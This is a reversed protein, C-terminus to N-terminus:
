SAQEKFLRMLVVSVEARTAAAKPSLTGDENGILIGKQVAWNMADKAWNSVTSLDPASASPITQVLYEEKNSYKYLIMALQERTVVDNPGFTNNEKGKIIGAELAWSIASNYYTDSAVDKFHHSAAVPKDELRYLIEVLMGRTMKSNPDFKTGNTGVILERSSMFDAADKFWDKNSVDIFNKSNDIIQLSASGSLPVSIGESTSVSKRIIEKSGDPKVLVAVMGPHTEAIPLTVKQVTTIDNPFTVEATIEGSSPITTETKLGNTMQETKIITGDSQTTQEISSGDPRKTMETRSNDPKTITTIITGDTHQTTETVTGKGDNKTTTTSGDPNKVTTETTTNSSSSSSDGGSSSSDSGGSSTSPRKRVAVVCSATYSGDETTVTITAKGVSKPTVTGKGDVIAVSTNDSHWYLKQNTANTPKVTARLTGTEGLYLTLNDRNMEIGQVPISSATDEITLIGSTNTIHYNDNLPTPVSIHIEYTGTKSTDPTSSYTMKIDGIQDGSIPGGSVGYEYDVGLQPNSLDPASENVKIKRDVAKLEIPKPMIKFSQTAEGLKVGDEFRVTVGYQGAQTPASTLLQQELADYYTVKLNPESNSYGEVSWANYSQGNYTMNPATMKLDVIQKNTVTVHINVMMDEYNAFSVIVPITASGEVAKLDYSLTGNTDMNVHTLIQSDGTIKGVQYSQPTYGSPVLQSINEKKLGADMSYMRNKDVTEPASAKRIVVEPAVTFEKQTTLDPLQYWKSDETSLKWEMVTAKNYSNAEPSALEAIGTVSLTKGGDLGVQQIKTTKKQGDYVFDELSIHEVHVVQPKLKVQLQAQGQAPLLTNSGGFDIYIQSTGIPLKQDTTKYLLTAKGNKDIKAKGLLNDESASNGFYFKVENEEAVARAYAQESKIGKKPEAKFTFRITDGYTYEQKDAELGLDATGKEINFNIQKKGTYSGIGIITATAKGININNTYDVLYDTGEVLLAGNNKVTISPKVAQGTYKQNAIADITINSDNINTGGTSQEIVTFEIEAIIPAGEISKALVMYYRGPNVNQDTSLTIKNDIDYNDAGVVIGTIELSGDLLDDYIDDLSQGIGYKGAQKNADYQSKNVVVGEIYPTYDLGDTDKFRVEYEVGNKNSDLDNKDVITPGIVRISNPDVERDLAPVGSATWTKSNSDFKLEFLNNYFDSFRFSDESSNRATIYVKENEWFANFDTGVTTKGSVQGNITLSGATDLMLTGGGNFDGTIMADLMNRLNLTTDNELSISHIQSSSSPIFTAGNKLHIDKFGNVQIDTAAVSNIELTSKNNGTIKDIWSNSAYSPIFTAGNKLHIDKFGNVQIDTAAVSNIELTSKNNGTIKDIWSNSANELKVTATTNDTFIGDRVKMKPDLILTADGEYPRQGNVNGLHIGQLITNSNPNKITLQAHNGMSTTTHEEAGGYVKMKPDLILTADGEYPREKINGLRIGQLITNNNPNKITLQAHNGIHPTTHEEAGGYVTPLLEDESSGIGGLSGGAGKLYTDVNDLTLSYGALFIERQAVSGLANSSEFHLKIDKFTVNDGALQLPYTDVNDLTLSYGALFIERQAVSGLANSSEFHLKIDKFTVNDGALQLPARLNLIATGKGEITTNAPIEIAKMSHDPNVETGLTISGQVIIHSKQQKLAQMFQAQTSVTITSRTELARLFEESLGDEEIIEEFFQEEELLFDEEEDLANEEQSEASENSRTELARLFEESLGDEEIIEEFFQEEELLFDEEEDLANEEQSEASENDLGEDEENPVELEENLSGDEGDPAMSGDGLNEDEKEPAESEGNLSGDEKEPVEPEESLNEDEKGSEELEESSDENEKEPETPEESLSEDLDKLQTNYDTAYVNSTMGQSLVASCALMAIVKKWKERKM